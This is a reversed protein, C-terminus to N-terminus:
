RRPGDTPVPAFCPFFTPADRGPITFVSQMRPFPATRVRFRKRLDRRFMAPGKTGARTADAMGHIWGHESETFEDM